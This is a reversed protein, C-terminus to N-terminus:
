SLKVIIIIITMLLSTSKDKSQIHLVQRMRDATTPDIIEVGEILEQWSRNPSERLWIDLGEELAHEFDCTIFAMAELKKRDDLSVQLHRSLEKWHTYVRLGCDKLVQFANTSNLQLEKIPEVFFFVLIIIYTPQVADM